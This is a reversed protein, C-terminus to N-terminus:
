FFRLIVYLSVGIWESSNLSPTEAFSFQLGTPPSTVVLPRLYRPWHASVIQSPQLTQASQPSSETTDHHQGAVRPRFVTIKSAQTSNQLYTSGFGSRWVRHANIPSSGERLSWELAGRDYQASHALQPSLRWLLLPLCLYPQSITGILSVSPKVAFLM